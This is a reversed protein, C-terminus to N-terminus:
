RVLRRGEITWAVDTVAGALADDHTVMVLAGPYAALAVELREISPLDLHNTPEDLLLVWARRGIGFAIALKRAEGPSVRESRLVRGPDLGLLAGLALVRGKEESPLALVDRVLRNRGSESIEQPLWLVRDAPLRSEEVLCRLLTSKGAGNAGDLRIRETRGVAVDADDVLTVGGVTLGGVHRLVFRHPSPEWEFAVDGGWERFMTATDLHAIKRELDRRTVALRKLGAAEGAAHRGAKAASRADIDGSAISRRAARRYRASKAETARREDALRRELKRREKKSAEHSEREEAEAAEWAVRAVSYPGNWLQAGGRHVRVTRTTLRDLVGRDYSVIIGVGQYRELADLLLDRAQRDLHNTPEDLLLVDPDSVLAAGVQWRKRQGPSLTEWRELHGDDLGLRARLEGAAGDWSGLLDHAGDPIDEVTQACLTVSGGPPDIDITGRDAIRGVILSLLTSKGSGNAGVLGTWGPGISFTVDTLLDVATTHSFSVARMRVAPM